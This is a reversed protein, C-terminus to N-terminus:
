TMNFGALFIVNKTSDFYSIFLM